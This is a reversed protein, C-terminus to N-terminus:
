PSNQKINRYEKKDEFTKSTRKKMHECSKNHKDNRM